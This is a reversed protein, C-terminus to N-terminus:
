AEIMYGHGRRTTILDKGLKRRVNSVHVDLLNSMSEDLEGFLQEYLMNRTVLRGRRLILFEVLAYEMPTLNVSVGDKSVTRNVLSLSFEGIAIDSDAEGKSRRVVARIRASLEELEFPKPLYDDAGQDLGAVRDVVTDRATVMLVPTKNKEHRLEKLVSIGDRKPLMIDLVIGDYNSALAKTLGAEGDEAVDVTHGQDELYTKVARLLDPEDEVYLLKM